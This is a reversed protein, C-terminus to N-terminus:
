ELVKEEIFGVVETTMDTNNEICWIKFKKHLDEDVMMGLNQKKKEESM